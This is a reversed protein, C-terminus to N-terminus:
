RLNIGIKDGLEIIAQIALNLEERSCEGFSKVLFYEKGDKEKAICLGASDKILLKINRVTEGTFSSLQRILVHIKALQALTGDEECNRECFIEITENENINSVFLEFLKKDGLKVFELKGNKKILKGTFHYSM